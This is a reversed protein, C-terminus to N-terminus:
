VMWEIYFGVSLPEMMGESGLGCWGLEPEVMVDDAEPV